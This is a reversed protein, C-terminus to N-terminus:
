NEDAMIRWNEGVIGCEPETYVAEHGILSIM